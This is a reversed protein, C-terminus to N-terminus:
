LTGSRFENKIVEFAKLHKRQSEWGLEKSKWVAAEFQPESINLEISQSRIQVNPVNPVNPIATIMMAVWPSYRILSLLANQRPFPNKIKKYERFPLRSFRMLEVPLTLNIKSYASKRHFHDFLINSLVKGSFVVRIYGSGLGAGLTHLHSRLPIHKNPGGPLQSFNCLALLTRHGQM